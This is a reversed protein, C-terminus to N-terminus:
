QSAWDMIVLLYLFGVEVSIYTIDAGGVQNPQELTLCRLM